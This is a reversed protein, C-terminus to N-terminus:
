YLAWRFRPLVRRSLGGSERALEELAAHTGHCCAHFKHQVAEFRFRQGGGRFARGSIFDDFSRPLRFIDFNDESLV